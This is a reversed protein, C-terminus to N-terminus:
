EPNHLSWEIYRSEWDMTKEDLTKGDPGVAESKQLIFWMQLLDGAEKLLKTAEDPMAM